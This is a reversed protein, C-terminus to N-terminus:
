ATHLEKERNRKHRQNRKRATQEIRQKQEKGVDSIVKRAMKVNVYPVINEEMFRHCDSHSAWGIRSVISQAQHLTYYDGRYMKRSLRKAALYIGDRLVTADKCFKYGGMDLWYTGKKLKSDPEHKGIKKIEWSKKVELGYETKLYDIIAHVAKYLDTKCTGLLLIDDVYRLYHKVWKIRKGRREKYLQQEVYWDLDQLYLNAFWPSTYYGVPCAVPASDIIQDFGWLSDKDKIKRRLTAKLRDRDINDFFKRIDLKVFYRLEKDNRLWGSVTKQLFSIGRKPVSGCCFPHMGRTFAEMNADMLMHSIIHDDLAPIYLTRWKGGSSARNRCFQEKSRPEGHVWRKTKLLNTLKEAYPRARNLDIQHYLEPEKELRETNYLLFQVSRKGRKFRTGEIIAKVGTDISTATNWTDKIRKM